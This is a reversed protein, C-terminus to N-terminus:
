CPAQGPPNQRMYDHERRVEALLKKVLWERNKPTSTSFAINAPDLGAASAAKKVADVISFLAQEEFGHLFVVPGNM